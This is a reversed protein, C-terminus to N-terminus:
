VHNHDLDIYDVYAGSELRVQWITGLGLLLPQQSSTLLNCSMVHCLHYQHLHLNRTRVWTRWRISRQQSSSPTTAAARTNDFRQLEYMRVGRQWNGYGGYGSHRGFCFYMGQSECCYDNGHNHGVALFQFRGSQIMIDVLGADDEIYNVDDGHFGMCHNKKGDEDDEGNTNWLHSM